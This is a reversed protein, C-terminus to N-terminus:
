LVIALFAKGNHCMGTDENCHLVEGLVTHFVVLVACQKM